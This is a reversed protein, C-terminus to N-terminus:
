FHEAVMEGVIFTCLDQVVGVNVIETLSDFFNSGLGRTTWVSILRVTRGITVIFLVEVESEVVAFAVVADCKFIMYGKSVLNKAEKTFSAEANGYLSKIVLM